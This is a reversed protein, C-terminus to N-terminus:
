FGKAYGIGLVFSRTLGDPRAERVIFPFGISFELANGSGLQYDLFVTGNLTLGDSGAISQVVGDVDTYEDEGLHFIPLLGPTITM